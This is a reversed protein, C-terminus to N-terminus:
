VAAANKPKLILIGSVILYAAVAASGAMDMYTAASTDPAFLVTALAACVCADVLSKARYLKVQAALVAEPNKDNLRRYRFWFWTNTVVGLAAIILGTAVNGKDANSKFILLLMVTGSLCMAAGVSANAARELNRRGEDTQQANGSHLSRYVFLSVFLAALEATRRIFDAIQTSSSGFLLGVGLIIPGPASLLVSALLTRGGSREAAKVVRREM